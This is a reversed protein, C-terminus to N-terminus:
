QRIPAWDLRNHVGISYIFARYSSPLLSCSLVALLHMLGDYFLSLDLGMMHLRIRMRAFPLFITAQIPM